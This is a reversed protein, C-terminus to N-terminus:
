RNRSADKIEKALQIDPITRRLQELTIAGLRRIVPKRNSLDVVTSEIGGPCQGGDIIMDVKDGIQMTVEEATLPSPQGSLNASTGVIPQGLGQILAIPIPHDPIRVAVTKGGGTIIDPVIESKNLIITLAGPLFNYIFLWSTPPISCAIKKIQERDSILLPLAMGKPRGKVDFIREVASISTMSAGLGYVTDTPYAIIGGKKLITIADDIQKELERSAIPNM